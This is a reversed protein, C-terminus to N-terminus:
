QSVPTTVPDEVADIVLLLRQQGTDAIPPSRHLISPNEAWLRGKLLAFAFPELSHIDEPAPDNRAAAHIWQTGPGIYTALGRLTVYDAHFLRCANDDICELRLAVGTAGSVELLHGAAELVHARLAPMDPYGATRMADSLLDALAQAPAALRLNEVSALDLERLEALLATPATRNWIALDVAPHLIDRLVEPDRSERDPTEWRDEM